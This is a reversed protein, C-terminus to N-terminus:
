RAENKIMILYPLAAQYQPGSPTKSRSKSSTGGTRSPARLWIPIPPTLNISSARTTAMSLPAQATSRNFVQLPIGSNVTIFAETALKLLRYGDTDTFPLARRGRLSNTGDGRAHGRALDLSDKAFQPLRSTLANFGESDNCLVLDMFAKYNNFSLAETTRKIMEWSLIEPTGERRTRSLDVAIGSRRM